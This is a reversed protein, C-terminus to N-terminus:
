FSVMLVDCHGAPLVLRYTSLNAPSLQPLCPIKAHGRNDHWFYKNIVFPFMTVEWHPWRAWVVTALHDCNIDGPILCQGWTVGSIPLLIRRISHAMSALVYGWSWRSSGGSAQISLCKVVYGLWNRQRTLPMSFLSLSLFQRSVPTSPYLCSNSRFMTDKQVTQMKNRHRDDKWCSHFLQKM